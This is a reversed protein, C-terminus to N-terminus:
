WNFPVHIHAFCSRQKIIGDFAVEHNNEKKDYQEEEQDSTGKDDESEVFSFHFAKLM